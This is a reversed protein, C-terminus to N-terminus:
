GAAVELLYAVMIRHEGVSLHHADSLEEVRLVQARGEELEPPFPFMTYDVVQAAFGAAALLEMTRLQSLISLQVIYAVGEPALAEPLKGILQDIQNRGWYDIRRHGSVHALPDAPHQLLSAVVVEYREEPVWPYLDVTAATVRHEVGNRFANGLTCAVAREDIDIAHVHAAGNLALQVALIGTGCGVDLCRQRAGVGERFLYRWAMLSPVTPVYVGPEATLDPFPLPYLPRRRRDTWPAPRPAPAASALGHGDRRAGDLPGRGPRTGALRERAAAIHEPRV